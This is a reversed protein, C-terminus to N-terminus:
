PTWIWGWGFVIWGGYHSALGVLVAAGWFFCRYLWLRLRGFDAAGRRRGMLVAMAILPVSALGLARHLLAVELTQGRFDSPRFLALGSGAAVLAALLGLALLLWAVRSPQRRRGVVTSWGEMAAGTLVLGIPFHVLAPHFHGYANRIPEWFMWVSGIM